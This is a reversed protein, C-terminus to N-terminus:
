NGREKDVQLYGQLHKEAYKLNTIAETVMFREVEKTFHKPKILEAKLDKTLVRVRDLFEQRENM